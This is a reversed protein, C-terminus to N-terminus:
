ESADLSALDRGFRGPSLRRGQSGIRNVLWVLRGVFLHRIRDFLRNGSENPPQIALLLKHVHPTAQLPEKLKERFLLILM